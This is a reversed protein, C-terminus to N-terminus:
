GVICFDAETEGRLRFGNPWVWSGAILGIFPPLDGIFDGKPHLRGEGELHRRRSAKEEAERISDRAARRTALLSQSTGPAQAM